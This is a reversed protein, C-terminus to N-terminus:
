RAKEPLQRDPGLRAATSLRAERAARSKSLARRSGSVSQSWFLGDRTPFARPGQHAIEEGCGGVTSDGRELRHETSLDACGRHGARRHAFDGARDPRYAAEPGRRPFDVATRADA